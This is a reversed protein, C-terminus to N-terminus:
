SQVEVSYALPDALWTHIDSNRYLACASSLYTPQPAKGARVLQRWKERSVPIFPKIQAFRSMGDRPLTSNVHHAEQGKKPNKM